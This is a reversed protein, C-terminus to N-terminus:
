IKVTWHEYHCKGTSNSYMSSNFVSWGMFTNCNWRLLLLRLSVEFFYLLGDKRDSGKEEREVTAFPNLQFYADRSDILMMWSHRDYHLSWAWYLEYRATAVPRPERPDKIPADTTSDGYMDVLACKRVGENAGTAVTVGDGEYCTWTVTYGIVNLADEGEEAQQSRLYEEVGKKLESVASVSL